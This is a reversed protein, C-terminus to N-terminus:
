VIGSKRVYMKGAKRCLGNCLSLLPKHRNGILMSIIQFDTNKVIHQIILQNIIQAEHVSPLISIFMNLIIVSQEASGGVCPLSVM